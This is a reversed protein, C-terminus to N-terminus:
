SLWLMGLWGVDSWFSRLVGSEAVAVVQAAVPVLALAALLLRSLLFLFAFCSSTEQVHELSSHIFYLVLALELVASLVIVARYLTLLHLHAVATALSALM